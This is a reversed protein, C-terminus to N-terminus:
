ELNTAVQAEVSFCLQGSFKLQIPYVKVNLIKSFSARAKFFLTHGSNVANFM